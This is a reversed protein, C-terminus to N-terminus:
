IAEWTLPDLKKIPWLVFLGDPSLRKRMENETTESLSSVSGLGKWDGVPCYAWHRSKPAETPREPPKYYPRPWVASVVLGSAAGCFQWKRPEDLRLWFEWDSLESEEALLNILYERGEPDLHPCRQGSKPLGWGHELCMRIVNVSLSRNWPNLRTRKM